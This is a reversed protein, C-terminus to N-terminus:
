LNLQKLIIGAVEDVLLRDTDVSFHAAAQYLPTRLALIEQIEQFPGKTTLGPRMEGTTSDKGMRQLITHETARLWIVTGSSRIDEVNEPDLVAGGGLSVVAPPSQACERVVQRERVRFGEWGEKEVIRSIPGGFRRIIEADTDVFPRNLRRALASGVSTKGVCRYGILYLRSNETSTPM